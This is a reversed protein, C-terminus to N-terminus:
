DGASSGTTLPGSCERLGARQALEAREVQGAAAEAQADAYAEPDNREAAELGVRLFGIAEDRADLYRDFAERQDEPPDLARLEGVEQVFIDILSEAFRVSEQRSTPLDRQAEAVREQADSCIEDGRSAFEEEGTVGGEGGGDGFPGCGTITTAVLLSVSPALFLRSGRV